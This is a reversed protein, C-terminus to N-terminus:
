NARILTHTHTLSLPRSARSVMHRMLITSTLKAFENAFPTQAKATDMVRNSDVICVICILIRSIRDFQKRKVGLTVTLTFISLPHVAGQCPQGQM